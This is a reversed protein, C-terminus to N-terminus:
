AAGEAALLALFRRLLYEESPEEGARHALILLPGPRTALEYVGFRRGAAVELASLKARVAANIQDRPTKRIPSTTSM